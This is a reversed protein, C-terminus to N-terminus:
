PRFPHNKTLPVFSSGNSGSKSSAARARSPVPRSSAFRWTPNAQFILLLLSPVFRPSVATLSNASLGHRCSPGVPDFAIPPFELEVGHHFSTGRPVISSTLERTRKFRGNLCVVLGRYLNNQRMRSDWSPLARAGIGFLLALGHAVDVSCHRVTQFHKVEFPRNSFRVRYAGGSNKRAHGLQSM